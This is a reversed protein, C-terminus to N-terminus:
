RSTVPYGTPSLIEGTFFRSDTSALFVYSPAIECPQAPRKWLSESGFKGVFERHCTAPILPTWVPGPAVCNVRIGRPALQQALSTTFNHIAGKTAAYDILSPFGMMATVSGSNIIVDGASLHKLAAQTTWIFGMINVRFTAEVQEPSIDEFRDRQKQYAANNVLINLGGLEGAARDVAQTCADHDVLDAAIALGKRGAEEIFRLTDHADQEERPHHVIAVDAGERSFAIAVARGIGSDGGTILAKLDRLKEGGQYTEEGHDAPPDLQRQSGPWEHEQPPPAGQHRSDNAELPNRSLNLGHHRETRREVHGASMKVEERMNHACAGGPM